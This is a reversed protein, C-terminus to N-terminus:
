WVIPGVSRRWRERRCSRTRFTRIYKWDVKRVIWNEAGYVGVSRIYCKV